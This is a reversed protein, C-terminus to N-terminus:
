TCPKLKCPSFLDLTFIVIGCGSATPPDPQFIRMRGLKEDISVSNRPFETVAGSARTVPAVGLVALALLVLLLVSRTARMTVLTKIKLTQSLHDISHSDSLFVLFNAPFASFDDKREKEL